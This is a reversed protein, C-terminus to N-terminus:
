EQMLKNVKEKLICAQCFEHTTPEGCNMCEGLNAPPFKNRLDEKITDYSRLISHRTGPNKTELSYLVDKFTGRLAQFSYPCMSDDFDIKHILAYLANEKEPIWRLPMMRPVLGPQVHLHPGLRALKNMDANVFNMLISQAIDDLNHGTALRSIKIDKAKKNLCQRRFVGCFSCAGLPSSNVHQIYDMDWDYEEKFSIEHYPIDWDKCVQKVKFLSEKRYGKIGEDVSLSHIEVDPRKQFIKHLLFLTVLSDKGGSVAVGIRTDHPIKGQKKLTKKVRKEVFLSFHDACLHTGNYRIYIVAPKQCKTCIPNM